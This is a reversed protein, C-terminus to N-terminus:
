EARLEAPDASRHLLPLSGLVMILVVSLTGLSVVALGAWPVRVDVTMGIEGVTTGLAGRAACIGAATAALVAPVLPALTEVVTARALVSGPVGVAALGALLRRRTLVGEVSGVLLSAATIVAGVGFGLHVLALAGRYFSSDTSYVVEDREVMALLNAGYGQTFAWLLVVLLLAAHARASQGPAALLRRGAILLSPREGYRVLLQGIAASLATTSMLLGVGTVLLLLVFLLAMAEPARVGALDVVASFGSLAVTGGVFLALAGFRSPRHQERRVVGFPSFTTRRLAVVAFLTALLPIAIVVVAFVPVGPLVDTPFRLAPGTYENEISTGDSVRQLTYTALVPGGLVVRLAFYAATGAAAGAIAALGTEAAAIRVVDSPTGGQMRVAALRRDRAPAGIRSCQGVFALIPICLLLFAIVIGPHLGTQNLLDSTYPGDGEGTAAVTVAALLSLTGLAAGTATLAIRTGDARGGKGALWLGTRWSM